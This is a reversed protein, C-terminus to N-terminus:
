YTARNGSVDYCQGTVFSAGDSALFHVVAAVEAPTGFRGIPVKSRVYDVTAAPMQDLLPTDIVGPAVCNIGIGHAVMEKALAKTFGIALKFYRVIPM